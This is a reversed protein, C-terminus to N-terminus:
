ARCPDSVGAAGRVARAVDEEWYRPRVGTESPAPQLLGLNVLFAVYGHRVGLEREAQRATMLRPLM